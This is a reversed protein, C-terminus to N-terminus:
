GDGLEGMLKKKYVLGLPLTDGSNKLKLFNNVSDISLIYNKNILMSRSSQLFDQSDLDLLIKNIPRYNIELIDDVMVIKTYPKDCEIYIINTTKIPFIIGENRFFVFKETPTEQTLDLAESIIELTKKADFPKEIYQYCHLESYAFLKPDELSTIFIVPTKKYKDLEKIRTAFVMGSVDGYNDKNIVIDLLFLDITYQMAYSYARDIHDAEMVNLDENMETLLNSLYKRSKESDELLLINRRM